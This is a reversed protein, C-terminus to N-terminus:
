RRRNRQKRRESERAAILDLFLERDVPVLNLRLFQELGTGTPVIARYVARKDVSASWRINEIVFQKDEDTMLYFLSGFLYLRQTILRVDYPTLWLSQMLAAYAAEFKKVKYAAVSYDLWLRANYPNADLAKLTRDVLIPGPEGSTLAMASNKRAYSASDLQADLSHHLDIQKSLPVTSLTGVVALLSLVCLWVTFLVASTPNLAM